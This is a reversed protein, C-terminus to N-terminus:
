LFDYECTSDMYFEQIPGWSQIRRGISTLMLISRPHEDDSYVLSLNEMGRLLRLLSVYPDEHRQYLQKIHASWYYYVQKQTM